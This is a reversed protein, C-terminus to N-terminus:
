PAPAFSVTPAQLQQARPAFYPRPELEGRVVRWPLQVLRQNFRGVAENYRTREVTIRNKTGAVEYSLARYHRDAHLAPQREILVLMRTTADDLAGASKPREADRASLYRQRAELVAVLQDREQQAYRETIKVLEPLLEAQRALQNEIQRWRTEAEADLALLENRSSWAIGTVLLALLCVAVLSVTRGSPRWDFRGRAERSPNALALAELREAVETASGPRLESRKAMLEKVLDYIDEDLEELGEPWDHLVRELHSELDDAPFPERGTFCRLVIAGLAFLDAAVDVPEGRVQEPALYHPSGVILPTDDAPASLCHCLGFDAVKPEGLRPLLVNSPKLDRHVLGHGHAAALGRAIAAAIRLGETRELSGRRRLREELTEGEVLEMAFWTDGERDFGADLVAVLNPHFIGSTSRMEATFRDVFARRDDDTALRARDIVKLAVRRRLQPDWADYVIAMGGRGLEGRIEYRAIRTPMEGFRALSHERIRRLQDETISM